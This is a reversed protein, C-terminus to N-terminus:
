SFRSSTSCGAGGAWSSGSGTARCSFASLVKETRKSGCRECMVQVGASPNVVFTEFITNCEHCRFEYIPM